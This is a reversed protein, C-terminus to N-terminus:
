KDEEETGTVSLELQNTPTIDAFLRSGDAFELMVHREGRVVRSVSKGALLETARESEAEHSANTM